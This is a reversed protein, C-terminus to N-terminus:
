TATATARSRSWNRCSVCRSRRPRARSMPAPSTPRTSRFSAPKPRRAAARANRSRPEFGDYVEKSLLNKLNRRDGQAYATVIMEYAARGGTLFHRADFSPDQALLADLGLATASGPEAIGKWREVPEAEGAEAGRRRCAAAAGRCQRQDLHAGCRAGFVSRLAAARPRHAPRARQAIAPFHVSRARTSHDHYVDFFDRMSRLATQM